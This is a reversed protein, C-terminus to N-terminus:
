GTPVGDQVPWGDATIDGIGLLTERTHIEAPGNGEDDVVEKVSSGDANTDGIGLLTERNRIETM